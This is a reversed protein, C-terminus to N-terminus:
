KLLAWNRYFIRNVGLFVVQLGTLITQLAARFRSPRLVDIFACLRLEDTYNVSRHLLTDDFIFLPDDRWLHRKGLVEIFAQDSDAPALNYLVRFTVRTPGFHWSTAEQRNFCSVGITKVHDFRRAFADIKIPAQVERDYWRFFIMGRGAADLNDQFARVLQDRNADLATFIEKLERVCGEPLDEIRLIGPNRRCILDICLNFPSVLWTLLGNGFFYRNIAFYRTTRNRSFDLLGCAVYALTVYPIFYVLLALVLLKGSDRLIKKPAM